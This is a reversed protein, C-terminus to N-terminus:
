ESTLRLAKIAIAKLHLEPLTIGVKQLQKDLHIALAGYSRVGDYHEVANDITSTILENRRLLKEAHPNLTQGTDIM